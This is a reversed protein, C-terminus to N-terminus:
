FRATLTGVVTRPAGQIYHATYLTDAYYKNTANLVNIRLGFQDSFAYEALLDATVFSPAVIGPPNRNPTQSSRM